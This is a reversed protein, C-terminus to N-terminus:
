GCYTQPPLFPIASQSQASRSQWARYVGSADHFLVLSEATYHAISVWGASLRISNVSWGTVVFIGSDSVVAAIEALAVHFNRCNIKLM